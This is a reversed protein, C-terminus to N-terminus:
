GTRTIKLRTVYKLLSKCRFLLKELGAQYAVTEVHKGPM